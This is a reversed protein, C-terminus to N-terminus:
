WQRTVLNIVIAATGVITTFIQWNRLSNNQPQPILKEPLPEAYIIDGNKMYFYPSKFVERNTLNVRGIERKGKVVRIITISDRKAFVSLDGASALADLITTRDDLLNFAGAKNVEGMVVYKHNMFRINVAPEKIFKNLALRIKEQAGELTLGEVNVKGVFAMVINGSSDVSYGIPQAGGGGGGPLSSLSLSNVNSFNIIDNSERNLSSVTIGLLDEKQIRSVQPVYVDVFAPYAATNDHFYPQISHKTSKCAIFGFCCFGGVIILQIVKQLAKLM